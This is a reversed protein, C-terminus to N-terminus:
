LKSWASSTRAGSCRDMCAWANLRAEKDVDRLGLTGFHVRRVERAVEAVKDGLVPGEAIRARADVVVFAREVGARGEAAKVGLADDDIAGLGEDRARVKGLAAMLPVDLDPNQDLIHAERAEKGPLPQPQNFSPHHPLITTALLFLGVRGAHRARIDIAQPLPISV